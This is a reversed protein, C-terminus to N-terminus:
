SNMMQKVLSVSVEAVFRGLDSEDRKQSTPVFVVNVFFSVSIRSRPLGASLRFLFTLSREGFARFSSRSNILGSIPSKFSVVITLEISSSILLM